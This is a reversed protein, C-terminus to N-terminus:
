YIGRLKKQYEKIVSDNFIRIDSIIKASKTRELMNKKEIEQKKNEHKEKEYVKVREEEKQREINLSEEFSKQLRNRFGELKMEIERDKLSKFGSKIPVYKKLNISINTDNEEDKREYRKKIKEEMDRQKEKMLKIKSYLAEDGPFIEKIDDAEIGQKNRQKEHLLRNFKSLIEINKKKIVSDTFVRHKNMEKIQEKYEQVKKNREKIKNIKLETLTNDIRIKRLYNYNQKINKVMSEELMQNYEKEKHKKLEKMKQEKVEKLDETVEMKLKFELSLKRRNNSSLLNRRSLNVSLERNIKKREASRM